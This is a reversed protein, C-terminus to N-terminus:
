SGPFVVSKINKFPNDTLPRDDSKGIYQSMEMKEMAYNVDRMSLSIKRNDPDISKVVVKVNMGKHFTSKLNASQEKEMASTHVLGEFRGDFKVFIGFEVIGSVEGQIIAGRPYKKKLEKYPNPLLHRRSCGIKKEELNIETIKFEIEQGPSFLKRPDPAPEDWTLDDKRILGDVDESISVFVGFNTVDRVTSTMVKGVSHNEKIEDWPNAFLQKLGLSIRKEEKNIGLIKTDIEQGVKVIEHAHNIKRTWSMESIHLLGEMGEGIDVFAGYRAVFSIKGSVTQGVQFREDVNDWPDETLQKLGLSLKHNEPDIELVRVLITEEMPLKEKFNDNKRDWSINSKHLFGQVGRVELFVGSRIHKKVIGEIEDGIKVKEALEGWRQNNQEDLFDKRSVVGTKKRQNLEVIKFSLTKGIIDAKKTKGRYDALSGVLTHPLFLHLGEVDVVYGNKMQRKVTGSIPVAHDFAEKVMEWGRRQELARKSLIALGSDKDIFKVMAEVEEGISPREDFERLSIKGESKTGMAVIVFESHEDSQFAVIKGHVTEGKQVDASPMVSSELLSEMSESPMQFKIAM